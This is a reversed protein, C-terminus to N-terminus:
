IRGNSLRVFDGVMNSVLYEGSSTRDFRFPLLRVAKEPARYAGADQFRAM